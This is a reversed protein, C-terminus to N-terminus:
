SGMVPLQWDNDAPASLTGSVAEAKRRRKREQEIRAALEKDPLGDAARGLWGLTFDDLGRLDAAEDCACAQRFSERAEADRHLKKLIWGHLALEDPMPKQQTAVLDNVTKLAKDLTKANGSYALALNFLPIRGGGLAAAERYHEEQAQVDNMEGCLIGLLNHAWARTQTDLKPIAREYMERAQERHGLKAHLRAIDLLARPRKAPKLDPLREELELLREEDAGPNAVVSFPNDLMLEFSQVGASTNVRATLAVVQNEDVSVSVDIPDGARVPPAVQVKTSKLLRGEASWEDDGGAVMELRLTTASSGDGSAMSLGREVRQEGPAPFPLSANVPVLNKIGEKARLGLSEGTTPKLPSTGYAALLLAHYAAGRGVCRLADRAQSYQLVASSPFYKMVEDQFPPLLSSGGVILVADIDEPTLGLRDLADQTPAFVSQALAYEGAQPALIFRSVYRRVAEKFSAQDLTPSTLTLEEGPRGSPVKTIGPLKVQLTDADAEPSGLRRLRMIEHSMKIKLSNAVGTLAPLLHDRKQTYSFSTPEKGNEKLLMPMFHDFALTDDIDSGGIRHFRSVAERAVAMRGGGGRNVRLIAVDCTGGGFDLVLVRTGGSRKPLKAEGETAVFDLFAAVPEDLLDGAQVDLGAAQAAMLTDQRQTWQFSAPVTVVIKDIDGPANDEAAERLFALIHGAIDRPTKFGDPAGYYQRRTGIENKTSWWINKNRQVDAYGRLRDAGEGVWVDDGHLAVVSPVVDQVLSGHTTTQEVEIVDAVPPTGSGPQWVVETITSNTTGLDIGVVRLPREVLLPQDWGDLWKFPANM